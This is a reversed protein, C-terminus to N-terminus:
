DVNLNSPPCRWSRRLPWRSGDVVTSL